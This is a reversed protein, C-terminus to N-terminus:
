DQNYWPQKQDQFWCLHYIKYLTCHVIIYFPPSGKSKYSPVSVPLISHLYIYKINM